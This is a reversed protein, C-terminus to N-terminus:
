PHRPPLPFRAVLRAFADWRLKRQSRRSLWKQWLRRVRDLLQWCARSNGPLRWYEYVGRLKRNLLQAQDKMPLHRHRRLWDNFTRMTRGFRKSATKRVPAWYGRRSMTWYHTFGLFTFTESRPGGRSPRKFRVLKTKEPHLTLGFRGFRKPLGAMVRDADSRLSFLM